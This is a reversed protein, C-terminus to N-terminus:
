TRKSLEPDLGLQNELETIAKLVGSATTPHEKSSRAQEKDAIEECNLTKIRRLALWWM